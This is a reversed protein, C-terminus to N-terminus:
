GLGDVLVVVARPAPQLAFPHASAAYTPSGLSAAVAPLVSVLSGEDYDPPAIGALSM